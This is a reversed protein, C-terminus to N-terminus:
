QYFYNELANAPKSNNKDIVSCLSFLEFDAQQNKSM